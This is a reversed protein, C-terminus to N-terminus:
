VRARRRCHVERPGTVSLRTPGTSQITFTADDSFFGLSAELDKRDVAEFYAWPSRELEARTLTM